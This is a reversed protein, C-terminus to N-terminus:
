VACAQCPLARLDVVNTAMRALVKAPFDGPLVHNGNRSGKTGLGGLVRDGDAPEMGNPVYTRNAHKPEVGHSGRRRIFSSTAWLSGGTHPVNCVDNKAWGLPM